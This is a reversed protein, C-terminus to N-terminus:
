GATPAATERAALVRAVARELAEAGQEVVVTQSVYWLPPGDVPWLPALKVADKLTCLVAEVGASAQVAAAVDNATFAHHDPYTPRARVRAGVAVLQAVFASANGIATLVAVSRGDLWSLPREAGAADADPVGM